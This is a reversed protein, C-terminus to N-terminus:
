AASEVELRDVAGKRADKEGPPAGGRQDTPKTADSERM